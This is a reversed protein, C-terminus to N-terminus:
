ACWLGWTFRRKVIKVHTRESCGKMTSQQWKMNNEPMRCADLLVLQAWQVNHAVIRVKLCLPM